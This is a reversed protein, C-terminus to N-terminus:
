LSGRYGMALIIGTHDDVVFYRVSMPVAFGLPYPGPWNDSTLRLPANSGEIGAFAALQFERERVLLQTQSIGSFLNYNTSITTGYARFGFPSPWGDITPAYGRRGYLALDIPSLAIAAPKFQSLISKWQTDAQHGGPSEQVEFDKSHNFDGSFLYLSIGSPRSQLRVGHVNESSYYAISVLQPWANADADFKARLALASLVDFPRSSERTGTRAVIRLLKVFGDADRIEVGSKRAIGSLWRRILPDAASEEDRDMPWTLFRTDVCLLGRLRTADAETYTTGTSNVWISTSLLVGPSTAVEGVLAAAAQQDNVSPPDNTGMAVIFRSYWQALPSYDTAPWPPHQQGTETLAEGNIRDVLASVATQPATTKPVCKADAARVTGSIALIALAVSLATTYSRHM